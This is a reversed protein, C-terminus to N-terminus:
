YAREQMIMHHPRGIFAINRTMCIIQLSEPDVIPCTCDICVARVLDRFLFPATEPNPNYAKSKREQVYLFDQRLNKPMQPMESMKPRNTVLTPCFDPNNNNLNVTETTCSRGLPTRFTLLSELGRPLPCFLLSSFLHSAFGSGSKRGM